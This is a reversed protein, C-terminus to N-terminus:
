KRTQLPLMSEYRWGARLCLPFHDSRLLQNKNFVHCHHTVLDDESTMLIFDIQGVNEALPQGEEHIPRHTFFPRLQDMSNAVMHNYKKIFGEFESRRQVHVSNMQIGSGERLMTDTGVLGEAEIGHVITNADLGM